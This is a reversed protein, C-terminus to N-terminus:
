SGQERKEKVHRSLYRAGILRCVEKFAPTHYITYIGNDNPKTVTHAVEHALTLTWMAKEWTCWKGIDRIGMVIYATAGKSPSALKEAYAATFYMKDSTSLSIPRLYDLTQLCTNYSLLHRHTLYYKQIYAVLKESKVLSHLPNDIGHKLVYSLAPSKDLCEGKLIYDLIDKNM